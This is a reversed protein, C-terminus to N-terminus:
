PRAEWLDRTGDRYHTQLAGAEERRAKPIVYREDYAALALLRYLRELQEQSLGASTALSRSASRRHAARAAQLRADGALKAPEGRVHEADGAALINAVYRWPSACTPSPASSRTPTTRRYGGASLTDLVPSLPPVYWVMPLTRYEPHLPLAVRAGEGARLRALAPRGRDLRPSRGGAGGRRRRPRRAPRAAAVAAGGRSGGRAPDRGRGDGRRPRLPRRRHFPHPGRLDGLLGDAQRGRRDSLLLHVERGQRHHPQLLGEQLPLGLRLLALRPVPGPRGARHWGGRAQVHAGSPCSAVCSPNVCHNCIRPLYFM